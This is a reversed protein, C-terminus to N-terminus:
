DLERCKHQNESAVALSEAEALLRCSMRPLARFRRGVQYRPLEDHEIMRHLELQSRISGTWRDHFYQMM